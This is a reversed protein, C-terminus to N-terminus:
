RKRPSPAIRSMWGSWFCPCRVDEEPTFGCRVWGARELGYGTPKTALLEAQAAQLDPM